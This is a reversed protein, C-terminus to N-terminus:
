KMNLSIVYYSSRCVKTNLRARTDMFIYVERNAQCSEKEVLVEM